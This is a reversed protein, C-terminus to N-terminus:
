CIRPPKDLTGIREFGELTEKGMDYQVVGGTVKTPKSVVIDGLRIDIENKINPVGGGIGVLLGFRISPFDNLLQTTVAAAANTGIEPLVAIVLNHGAIEGFTYSNLDRRTALGPHSQDLLATVPALEVGMPCICAVTYDRYSLPM